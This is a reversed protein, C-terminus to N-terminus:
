VLRVLLWGTVVIHGITILVSLGHLWKFRQRHGADTARNIAPMLLQRVPITTVVIGAMVLAATIDHSLWALAAVAATAMVFVYFLPFAQRLTAGATQKPLVSFLLAAFGFSYLMMGGFLFATTLVALPHTM